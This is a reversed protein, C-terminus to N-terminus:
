SQNPASVGLPRPAQCRQSGIRGATKNAARGYREPPHHVSPPVPGSLTPGCRSKRRAPREQDIGFPGQNLRNAVQPSGFQYGEWLHDPVDAWMQPRLLSSAGALLAGTKVFDRRRM